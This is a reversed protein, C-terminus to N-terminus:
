DRKQSKKWQVYPEDEVCIQWRQGTVKNVRVIGRNIWRDLQRTSVSFRRAWTTKPASESSWVPDSTDDHGPEAAMANAMGATEPPPTDVANRMSVVQRAARQLPTPQVSARPRIPSGASTGRYASRGSSDAQPSLPAQPEGGDIAFLPPLSVCDSTLEAIERAMPTQKVRAQPTGEDHLKLYGFSFPQTGMAIIPQRAFFEREGLVLDRHTLTVAHTCVQAAQARSTAVNGASEWIRWARCILGMWEGLNHSNVNDIGAHQLMPDRYDFQLQERAHDLWDQNPRETHSWEVFELIAEDSIM